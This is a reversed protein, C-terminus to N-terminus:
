RPPQGAPKRLAFSRTQDGPEVQVTANNGEADPPIIDAPDALGSADGQAARKKAMEALEATTRAFNIKRVAIIQVVNAGPTVSGVSYRGDKIPAGAPQGKGDKPTFTISGDKVAKDEYTVEGSVTGLNGGGCGAALLAAALALGAGRSASRIM